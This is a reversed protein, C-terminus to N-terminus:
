VAGEKRRLGVVLMMVAGALMIIVGSYVVPSWPQRIFQLVCYKSDAGAVTDYSVLYIDYGNFRHPHNVKIEVAESVDGSSFMVDAKFELPEGSDYMKVDFDTLTVDFPLTHAQQESIYSVNVTRNRFVAARSNIMDCAGFVGGAVAIWLGAHNLLFSVNYLSMKCGIRRFIVAGLVILFYLIVGFFIWSSTFAHLGLIGAIGDTESPEFSSVQVTFGVVLAAAILAFFASYVARSSTLSFNGKRPTFRLAVFSAYAVMLALAASVPFAFIGSPDINGFILQLVVSVALIIFLWIM